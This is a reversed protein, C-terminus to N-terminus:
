RVASSAQPSIIRSPRIEQGNIWTYLVELAERTAAQRQADHRWPGDFGYGNGTFHRALLRSGM